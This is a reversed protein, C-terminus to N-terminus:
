TVNSNFSDTSWYYHTSPIDIEIIIYFIIVKYVKLMMKLWSYVINFVKIHYYTFLITRYLQLNNLLVLKYQM